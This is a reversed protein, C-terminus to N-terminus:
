FVHNSKRLRCNRVIGIIASIISISELLIGGLSFVIINYVLVLPSSILISKRFHQPNDFSLCYTNITLGAIVLASWPGSATIIGILMVLVTLLFPIRKWKFIDKRYYIGNRLVGFFNMAMGPYAGLCFYHVGMVFVLATQVLLLKKRDKMQYVAFALGLGILGLTQGIVEM